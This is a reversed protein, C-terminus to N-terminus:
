GLMRVVRSPLVSSSSMFKSSAASLGLSSTSLARILSTSPSADSYRRRTRLEQSQSLEFHSPWDTSPRFHCEAPAGNVGHGQSPAESVLVCVTELTTPWCSVTPANAKRFM